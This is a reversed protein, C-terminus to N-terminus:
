YCPPMYRRDWRYRGMERDARLFDTKTAKGTLHAFELAATVDTHKIGQGTDVINWAHPGQNAPGFDADGFVVLCGIGAGDCLFKFSKAIGECVAVHNKKSMPGLITQSYADVQHGYTVQRALFDFLLWVKDRQSFHAPLQGLVWQRWAEAEERLRDIEGNDFYFSFGLVEAVMSRQVTYQYYNVWFIEPHDKVVARVIETSFDPDVLYPPLVIRRQKAALMRYIGDYARQSRPDLQGRYHQYAWNSM